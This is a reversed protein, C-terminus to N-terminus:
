VGRTQLKKANQLKSLLKAYRPYVCYPTTRNKVYVILADIDCPGNRYQREWQEVKLLLGAQLRSVKICCKPIGAHTSTIALASLFVIVFVVKLDM